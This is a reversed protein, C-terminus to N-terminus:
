CCVKTAIDQRGSACKTSPGCIKKVPPYVWQPLGGGSISKMENRLLVNEIAFIKTKKENSNKM